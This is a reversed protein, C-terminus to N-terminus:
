NGGISAMVVVSLLIMLSSIFIGVLNLIRNKKELALCVGIIGLIIGVYGVSAFAFIISLIGLVQSPRDNVDVPANYRQYGREAEEHDIPLGCHPCFQDTDNLKQGCRQCYM